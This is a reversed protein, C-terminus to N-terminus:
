RRRRPSPESTVPDEVVIVAAGSRRMREQKAQKLAVVEAALHAAVEEDTAIRHSKAQLFKAAICSVAQTVIPTEGSATAVIWVFEPLTQELARRDKWYQQIRASM